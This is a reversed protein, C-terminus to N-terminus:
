RGSDCWGFLMQPDRNRLLRPEGAQVEATTGKDHGACFMNSNLTVSRDGTASIIERSCDKNLIVPLEVQTLTSDRQDFSNLGWGAVWGRTGNELKSDDFRTPLCVLQVQSTLTAPVSLKMLAIDSDFNLLSFEQMFIQSVKM